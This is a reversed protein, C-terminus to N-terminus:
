IGQLCDLQEGGGGGASTGLQSKQFIGWNIAEEIPPPETFM